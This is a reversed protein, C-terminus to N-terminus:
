INDRRAIEEWRIGLNQVGAKLLGPCIEDASPDVQDLIPPASNGPALGDSGIGKRHSLLDRHRGSFDHMTVTQHLQDLIRWGCRQNLRLGHEDHGGPDHLVVDEIQRRMVREDFVEHIVTM